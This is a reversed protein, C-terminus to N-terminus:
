RNWVIGWILSTLEQDKGKGGEDRGVLEYFLRLMLVLVQGVGM